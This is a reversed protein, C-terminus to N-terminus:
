GAIGPEGRCVSADSEQAGLCHQTQGPSARAERAIASVDPAFLLFLVLAILALLLAASVRSGWRRGLQSM